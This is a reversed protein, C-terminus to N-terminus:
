RWTLIYIQDGKRYAAIDLFGEYKSMEEAVGEVSSEVNRVVHYDLKDVTVSEKFFDSLLQLHDANLNNLFDLLSRKGLNRLATVRQALAWSDFLHQFDPLVQQAQKDMFIHEEVNQINLHM